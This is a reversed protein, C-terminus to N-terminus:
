MKPPRFTSYMKLFDIQQYVLSGKLFLVSRVEDWKACVDTYKDHQETNVSTHSM